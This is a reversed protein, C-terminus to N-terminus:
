ERVSKSEATPGSSTLAVRVGLEEEVAALISDVPRGPSPQFERYVPRATALARGIAEVHGLDEAPGV